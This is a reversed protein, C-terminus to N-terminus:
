DGNNESLAESLTRTMMIEATEVDGLRLFYDRKEQASVDLYEWYTPDGYHFRQADRAAQSKYSNM